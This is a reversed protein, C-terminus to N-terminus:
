IDIHVSNYKINTWTKTFQENNIRQEYKQFINRFLSHLRSQSITENSIKTNLIQDQICILLLLFQCLHPM